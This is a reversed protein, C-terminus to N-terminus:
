GDGVSMAICALQSKKKKSLRFREFALICDFRTPVVAQPYEPLAIEIMALGSLPFAVRLPM